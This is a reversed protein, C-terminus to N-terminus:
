DIIKDKCRKEYIEKFQQYAMEKAVVHFNNFLSIMSQENEVQTDIKNITKMGPFQSKNRTSNGHNGGIRPSTDGVEAKPATINSSM